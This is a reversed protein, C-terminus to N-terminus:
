IPFISFRTWSSLNVKLYSDTDTYFNWKELVQFHQSAAVLTIKNKKIVKGTAGTFMKM